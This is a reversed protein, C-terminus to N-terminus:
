NDLLVSNEWWTFCQNSLQKLNLLKCNSKHFGYAECWVGLFNPYCTKMKCWAYSPAGFNLMFFIQINVTCMSPPPASGGRAGRFYRKLRKICLLVELDRLVMEMGRVYTEFGRGNWTKAAQMKIEAAQSKHSLFDFYLLWFNTIPSWFTPCPSQNASAQLCLSLRPSLNVPCPPRMLLSPPWKAPSM